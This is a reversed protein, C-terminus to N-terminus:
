NWRASQSWIFSYNLERTMMAGLVPCTNEICVAKLM